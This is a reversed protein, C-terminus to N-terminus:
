EMVPVPKGGTRRAPGGPHPGGEGKGLRGIQQHRFKEEAVLLKAVKEAPLVKKYRALAQIDVADCNKKAAEYQDLLANVDKGEVGNKLAKLAKASAKFAERRQAQVENYVPWFAQAEAETLDLESTIMAVQQSRIKERWDEKDGKKQAYATVSGILALACLVNIIKKM